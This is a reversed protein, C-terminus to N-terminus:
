VGLIETSPKPLLMSTKRYLTGHQPHTLKVWEDGNRIFIDAITFNQAFGTVNILKGILTNKKPASIDTIPIVCRDANWMPSLGINIPDPLVDINNPKALIELVKVVNQGAEELLPSGGFSIMTNYFHKQIIKDDTLGALMIYKQIHLPADSVGRLIAVLTDCASIIEAGNEELEIIVDRTLGRYESLANALVTPSILSM